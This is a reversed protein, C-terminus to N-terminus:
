FIFYLSLNYDHFKVWKNHADVSSLFSYVLAWSINEQDNSLGCLCHLLTMFLWTSKRCQQFSYNACSCQCEFAFNSFIKVFEVVGFIVFFIKFHIKIKLTTRISFSRPDRQAGEITENWNTNHATTSAGLFVKCRTNSYLWMLYKDSLLPELSAPSIWDVRCRYRKTSAECQVCYLIYINISLEM